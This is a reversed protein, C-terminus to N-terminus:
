LVTFNSTVKPAYLACPDMNGQLSVKGGTRKRFECVYVDSSVRTLGEVLPKLMQHISQGPVLSLDAIALMVGLM